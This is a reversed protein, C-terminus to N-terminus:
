PLNKPNTGSTGPKPAEEFLARHTDESTYRGAQRQVVIREGEEVWELISGTGVGLRRRVESPVSVRGKADLKSRAIVM